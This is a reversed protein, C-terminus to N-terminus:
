LRATAPRLDIPVWYESSQRRDQDAGGNGQMVPFCFRTEVFHGDGYQVRVKGTIPQTTNRNVKYLNLWCRIEDVPAKETLEAYEWQDRWAQDAAPRNAVRIDRFYKGYKNATNKFFLDRQGPICVYLDVDADAEWWAAIGMRGKPAVPIPPMNTVVPAAVVEVRRVEPVPLTRGHVTRMELVRDSADAQYSGAPALGSQTVTAFARTMDASFDVLAGGQRAIFLGWFRQTSEKLLQNPWIAERLYCHHVLCGRLREKKDATGYISGAFNTWLHGDSPVKGGAMSFAPEDVSLNLPNGILLVAYPEGSAQSSVIQLFEPIRLAGSGNLPPPVQRGGVQKHWEALRAFPEKMRGAREAPTDFRLQPIKFSAIQTLAYADHVVITTDPQAELIFQGVQRRIAKSDEASAYPSLGIHVTGLSGGQTACALSLSAIVIAASISPTHKM